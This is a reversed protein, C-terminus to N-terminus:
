FTLLAHVVDEFRYESYRAWFPSERWEATAMRPSGLGHFVRAAVRCRYARLEAEVTAACTAPKAKRAQCLVDHLLTMVRPDLM